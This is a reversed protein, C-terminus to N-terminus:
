PRGFVEDAIDSRIAVKFYDLGDHPHLVAVLAILTELSPLTRGSEYSYLTPSAIELGTRDQLENALKVMSGFGADMRASKLRRGFRSRDIIEDV